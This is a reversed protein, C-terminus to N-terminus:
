QELIHNHTESSPKSTINIATGAVANALTTALKITTSSVKIVYYSTGNTLGGLATGSNTDYTFTDGTSLFPASTASAKYTIVETSTNVATNANFEYSRPDYVKKGKVTFSINPIRNLKAHDYVMELFVYACQRFLHTDPVLTDNLLVRARGDHATQNGDHFSYRILAGSGLSNANDTNTFEANTATYMTESSVTSSTVVLEKDDFRVSSLSDIPHGSIVIFMSLVDNVSGSTHIQTIVGGVRCEGYIIQRPATQSRVSTKSGFNERTADLGKSTLESIIGASLTTVAAYTAMAMLDMTALSAWFGTAGVELGGMMGGIVGGTYIVAAVVVFTVIAQKISDSM